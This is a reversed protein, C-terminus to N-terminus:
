CIKWILSMIAINSIKNLNQWMVKYFYFGFNEKKLYIIIITILVPRSQGYPKRELFCMKVM